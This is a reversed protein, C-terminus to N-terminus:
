SPPLTGSMIRLVALYDEARMPRPNSPTSHNRAAMDAITQFDAERVGLETFRPLAVAKALARVAAVAEAARAEIDHADRGHPIRMADAVRAYRALCYEMNYEMMYPLIVANCVGHPLDYLGGLAEAICHVSAVDSHSFAIGGLMSGMLMATRADADGGDRVAAELNEAILEMSYLAAADSIPEACTVSFAEIAHTLADMGTSATIAAPVSLTLAPDCVAALPATYENKVTMKFKNKTNTIVSSFTLESGTGATTPMVFLPPLPKAEYDNTEHTKEFAIIDDARQAILVGAAKACDIPSGGGVAVIGDAQADRYAAAAEAVDRDKPNAEVRDFVGATQAKPLAALAKELVGAAVIGPDTVILPRKCGHAALVEPLAAACGWGFTIRTPLAFSFGKALSDSNWKKM